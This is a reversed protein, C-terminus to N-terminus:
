LMRITKLNVVEFKSELECLAGIIDMKSLGLFECLDNFDIENKKSSKFALTLSMEIESVSKKTSVNNTSHRNDNEKEQKVNIHCNDIANRKNTQLLSLSNLSAQSNLANATNSPSTIASNNVKPECEVYPSCGYGTNVNNPYEDFPIETLFKNKCITEMLDVEHGFSIEADFFNDIEYIEELHLQDIAKKKVLFTGFILVDDGKKTQLYKMYQEKTTSSNEGGNGLVIKSFNVNDNELIIGITKFRTIVINQYRKLGHKKDSLVALNDVTLPFGSGKISRNTGNLLMSFTSSINIM